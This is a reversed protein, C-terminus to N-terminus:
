SLVGRFSARHILTPGYKQLSKLHKRTGYGKNHEFGYEPYYRSLKIMIGDRIVKAIISAAAVSVSLRDGNVLPLYGIGLDTSIFDSLIIDPKIRLSSVARQFAIANAKTISIRDIEDPPIKVVSWCLCSKIVKKFIHKRKDESLRKSDNIDEIIMKKKDLIVAAAVLPGALSGRGVEDVGAVKEYGAIYLEDEYRCLNILRKIEKFEM